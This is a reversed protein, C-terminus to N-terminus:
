HEHHENVFSLTTTYSVKDAKEQEDAPPDVKYSAAIVNLGQNRVALNAKGQADTTAVVTESDGVYDAIIKADAVPKGHHYVIVDINDGLKSHMVDSQPLIVLPLEQLAEITPLDGHDTIGFAIKVSHSASQAGEVENKPQNHWKGNSDKTWFGNDMIVAVSTFADDANFGANKERKDLKIDVPQGHEDFTQVFTIKEPDYSEDSAGHGYVITPADVREAVWAGHGFALPTAIALLAAAFLKHNLM